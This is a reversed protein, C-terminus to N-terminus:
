IYFLKKMENGEILDSFGGTVFKGICETCLHKVGSDKIDNGEFFVVCCVGKINEDTHFLCECNVMKYTNRKKTLKIDDINVCNSCFYISGLNIMDKTFYDTSICLNTNDQCLFCKGYFNLTM